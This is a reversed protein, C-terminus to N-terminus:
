EVREFKSIFVQKSGLMNMVHAIADRASTVMEVYSTRTLKNDEWWEVNILYVHDSM